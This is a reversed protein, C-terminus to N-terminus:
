SSLGIISQVVLALAGVIVVVTSLRVLVVALLSLWDPGSDMAFLGTLMALMAVVAAGVVVLGIM